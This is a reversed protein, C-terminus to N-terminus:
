EEGGGVAREGFVYNVGDKFLTHFGVTTDLVDVTVGSFTVGDYADGGYKPAIVTVTHGREALTVPLAGSVFGLGGSSSFPYVEASIWFIDRRDAPPPPPPPPARTAGTKAKKSAAAPTAAAKSPATRTTQPSAATAPRRAQPLPPNILSNLFTLRSVDLIRSTWPCPRRSARANPLTFSPPFCSTQKPGNSRSRDTGM